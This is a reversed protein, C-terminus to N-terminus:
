RLGRRGERDGDPEAFEVLVGDPDIAFVFRGFPRQIPKAGVSLFRYGAKRTDEILTDLGRVELQFQPAGVDQIRWHFPNATVGTGTASGTEPRAGPSPGDTAALDFESLIVSEATGPILMATQEIEGEALGRLTREEANAQWTARVTFGLLDRYFRLATQTDAVTLGISTTVVPHPSRAAAVEAPSAQRVEILYGDPDRVLISRGARTTVPAGGLTVVPARRATLKDVVEDLARVGFILVSAGPDWPNPARTDRAIDVFESLELGFPTNPARMFVTRARSGKTNTLDWILPDGRADALPRIREPGAGAPAPGAFPSRALEIGLVDRYFGFAREADATSHIWNFIGRVVTPEATDPLQASLPRALAVATLLVTSLLLKL